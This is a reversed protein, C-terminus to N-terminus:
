IYESQRDNQTKGTAKVPQQHNLKQVVLINCDLLAMNKQLYKLKVHVLRQRRHSIDSCSSKATMLNVWFSNQSILFFFQGTFSLAISHSKQCFKAVLREKKGSINDTKTFQEKKPAYENQGYDKWSLPTM